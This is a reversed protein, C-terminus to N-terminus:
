QAFSAGASCLNSLIPDCRLKTRLAAALSTVELHERCSVADRNGKSKEKGWEIRHIIFASSSNNTIMTVCWRNFRSCCCRATRHVASQVRNSECRGRGVSEETSRTGDLLLTGHRVVYSLFANMASPGSETSSAPDRVTLWRRQHQHSPRGM